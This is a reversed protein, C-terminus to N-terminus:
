KKGFDPQFISPFFDSLQAEGKAVKGPTRLGTNILRDFPNLKHATYTLPNFEPDNLNINPQYQDTNYPRYRTEEPNFLNTTLNYPQLMKETAVGAGQILPHVRQTLSEVPNNMADFASFMSQLPSPKYIGKFFNSLKQEGFASLPVAGRAKADAKFEDNETDENAWLGENVSLAHDVYQPHEMFMEFWYSINKLWFTPFPVFGELADLVPSTANYDFNANHMSNIADLM